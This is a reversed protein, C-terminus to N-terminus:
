MPVYVYKGIHIYTCISVSVYVLSWIFVFHSLHPKDNKNHNEGGWQLCLTLNGCNALELSVASFQCGSFNQEPQDSISSTHFQVNKPFPMVSHKDTNQLMKYLYRCTYAWPVHLFIRALFLLNFKLKMKFKSLNLLSYTIPRLVRNGELIWQSGAEKQVLLPARITTM